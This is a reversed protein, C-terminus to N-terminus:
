NVEIIVIKRVIKHGPSRQPSKIALECQLVFPPQVYSILRATFAYNNQEMDVTDFRLPKIYMKKELTIFRALSIM